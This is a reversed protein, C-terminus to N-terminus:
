QGRVSAVIADFEAQTGFVWLKGKKIYVGAKSGQSIYFNQLAEEGPLHTFNAGLKVAIFEPTSLFSYGSFIDKVCDGADLVAIDGSFLGIGSVTSPLKLYAIPNGDFATYYIDTIGNPIILETLRNGSFADGPIRRLNKSFQIKTIRNDRFCGEGIEVVSDPLIVEDLYNDAFAEDGIIRVGNGIKVTQLPCSYFARDGISVITPPIELNDISIDNRFIFNDFVDIGNAFLNGGIESVQIGQITSPIKVLGYAGTGLFKTITIKGSRNQIYDFDAETVVRAKAQALRQAEAQKAQEEKEAALRRAEAEQAEGEQEAKELAIRLAELEQM